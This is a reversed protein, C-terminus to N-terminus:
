APTFPYRVQDLSAGVVEIETLRNPGLGAQYALNLHNDAYLFPAAPYDATPDFGMAATTVADTAAANKGAILVGPKVEAFKSGPWPVEGGEATKIGDVLALNIPRARNLDVVVRPLRTKMEEETGHMASRYFHDAQLRYHQTPGLGILNKMSHTVGCSRHCKMKAVSIFADVETLIPNFIFNDYIFWNEGVPASVFDVYPAPTNLDILTANLVKAVVDYGCWPYSEQDFVGEVIFLQGAGADRVLEGLAQVVVPHTMYSETAPTTIQKALSVGGTLNIKIAVRDGPKIVDGLGGLNDLLSQVQRRILNLEYNDAQAIAVRPWPSITPTPTFTPTNTPTVTPTQTPSPTPTHTPASTPSSTPTPTASATPTPTLTSTKTPLPSATPTTTPRPTATPLPSATPTATPLAALQRIPSCGALLGTAAAAKLFHRRSIQRPRPHNRALHKKPM